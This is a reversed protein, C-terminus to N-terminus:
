GGLKHMEAQLEAVTWRDDKELTDTLTWPQFTRVQGGLVPGDLIIGGRNAQRRLVHESVDMAALRPRPAAVEVPGDGVERADKM